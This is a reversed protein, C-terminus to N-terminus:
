YSLWCKAVDDKENGSVNELGKGLNNQFSYVIPRAKEMPHVSQSYHPIIGISGLPAIHLSPHYFIIASLASQNAPHLFLINITYRSFLTIGRDKSQGVSLLTCRKMRKTHLHSKKIVCRKSFYSGKEEIRYSNKLSVPYNPLM